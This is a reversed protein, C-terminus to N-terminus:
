FGGKEELFCDEQLDFEDVLAILERSWCYQITPDGERGKLQLYTLYREELNMEHDAACIVCYQFSYGPELKLYYVEQSPVAYHRPIIGVGIGSRIMEDVLYGNESHFVVMPRFGAAQIAAYSLQGITTNEDMLVFPSDRFEELRVTATHDPDDTAGFRNKYFVPVSLLLEERFLPLIRVGPQAPLVTTMAYDATGERVMQYLKQTYGEKLSFEIDHFKRRMSPYLKAAAEAGLHPTVGLRLVSHSSQTLAHISAATDRQLLLIKQAAELYLRGAATPRLQKKDRYFLEVGLEKQQKALYKSLAPQSIGLQQAASSLSGTNAIAIVYKLQSLNM